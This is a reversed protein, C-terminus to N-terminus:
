PIPTLRELLLKLVSKNVKELSDLLCIDKNLLKAIEEIYKEKKVPLEGSKNTYIRKKYIGMSALKSRISRESTGFQEVLLAIPVGALYQQSLDVTQNLNYKM